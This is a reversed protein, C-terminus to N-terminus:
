VVDHKPMAFWITMHGLSDHGFRPPRITIYLIYPLGKVLLRGDEYFHEFIMLNILSFDYHMYIFLEYLGYRRSMEIRSRRSVYPKDRHELFFHFQCFLLDFRMLIDAPFSAPM